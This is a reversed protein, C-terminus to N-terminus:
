IQSTSPGGREKVADERKCLRVQIQGMGLFLSYNRDRLTPVVSEPVGLVLTQGSPSVGNRAYLHWRGVELDTNQKELAKLVVRPDEPNPIHVFARILKPIESLEMTQLEAGEWPQLGPIVSVLWEKTSPTACVVRLAGQVLSCGTMQPITDPDVLGAVRRLVARRILEAERESLSVSPYGRKAVVVKREEPVAVHSYKLGGGAARPRKTASKADTPTSGASRPRKGTRPSGAEMQVGSPGALPDGTSGQQPGEQNPLAGTFSGGLNLGSPGAVAAATEGAAARAQRRRRKEAGCINRRKHSLEKMPTAVERTSPPQALEIPNAGAQPLSQNPSLSPPTPSINKQITDM